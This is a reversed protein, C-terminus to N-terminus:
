TSFEKAYALVASTVVTELLPVDDKEVGVSIRLFPDTNEAMSSSASIRSTSFGFSVGKTMPLSHEKATAIVLEICADLGEKSNLGKELFEITIISGGHRWGLESWGVPFDVTAVNALSKVLHSCLTQSNQTLMALRSQYHTFDLPAFLSVGRSYMVSGLNRRIRRMEEDFESPFVVFGAMQIDLGWQPYKSASESYLVLPAHPGVFWDYIPLGGSIMTGDIVVIRKEWGPRISVKHAFDRVDTIPLGAMNAVPDLFVVRSDREEATSILSASDFGEAQSLHFLGTSAISKVQESAEFYVYPPMLVHDGPRLRQLFFHLLIQFAAMGSSALLLSVPQQAHEVPRVAQLLMLETSRLQIAGYRDYNVMTSNQSATDSFWSTLSQDYSPSARDFMCSAASLLQVLVRYREELVWFPLTHDAVHRAFEVALSRVHDFLTDVVSYSWTDTRLQLRISLLRSQELKHMTADVSELLRSALFALIARPESSQQQVAGVRPESGTGTANTTVTLQDLAGYRETPNVINRLGMSRRQDHDSVHTVLARAVANAAINSGTLMLLVRSKRGGSTSPLHLQPIAAIAAAASGELLLSQSRIAQAIAIAVDEESVQVVDSILSDLVSALPTEQVLQVALGDCYSAEVPRRLQTSLRATKDFSRGFVRPHVCTVQTQTAYESCWAAIAAALGGGGLPVVIQDFPGADEFAEVVSTGAGAAVKPDAYPSIYHTSTHTRGQEMAVSTAEGLDNGFFSVHTANSVLRKAKVESVGVPAVITSKKGLLQAAACIALAHNGASATVITEAPSQMMANLAGRYKFSGTHQHCELKAWVEVGAQDLWPLRITPTRVVHGALRSTSQRVQGALSKGSIQQDITPFQKRQTLPEIPALPMSANLVVM